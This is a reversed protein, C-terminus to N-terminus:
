EKGMVRRGGGESDSEEEKMLSRKGELSCPQSVANSQTINVDGDILYPLQLHFVLLM